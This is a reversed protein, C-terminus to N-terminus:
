LLDDMTFVGQKNHLFEAALVAGLALGGRGHAEHILRISDDASKAIVEHIGTVEGLRHSTVPLQKGTAKDAFAWGEYRDVANTIQSVLKLATGSPADLKHIHHTESISITYDTKNVLEALQRNLRFMMNMGPSFNPAYFFSRGEQLCRNLVAELENYWGTTGEVVKLGLDFCRYINSVALQPLSFGIAVDAQSLKEAQELWDEHSDIRAMINHGRKQATQEVEHGMRGYGILAINLSKM